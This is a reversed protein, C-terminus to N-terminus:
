PIVRDKRAGMAAMLDADRVGETFLRQAYNAYYANLDVTTGYPMEYFQQIMIGKPQGPKKCVAGSMIVYNMNSFRNVKAKVGYCSYGADFMPTDSSSVAEVYFGDSLAEITSQIQDHRWQWDYQNFKLGSKQPGYVNDYIYKIVISGSINKANKKLSAGFVDQNDKLSKSPVVHVDWNKQFVSKLTSEAANAGTAIVACTLAVLIKKMACVKYTRVFSTHVKFWSSFLGGIM